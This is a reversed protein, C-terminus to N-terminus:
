GAARDTGTRRNAYGASLGSMVILAGVVVLLRAFNDDALIAGGVTPGLIAAIGLVAPIASVYRGSADLEAVNGLQFIISVTWAFMFVPGAILYAAEPRLLLGILCAIQTIGAVLIPTLRGVREHLFIPVLSGAGGALLAVSLVAGVTEPAISSANGLREYFAWLAAASTHFVLAGGLAPIVNEAPAWDKHREEQQATKESRRVIWPLLLMSIAPLLALTLMLGSFGWVPIIAIPLVLVILAPLTVQAFTGIGLSRDPNRTDLLSITAIGFLGGGGLGALFLVTLLGSLSQLQTSGIFSVIQVAAFVACSSRWSVRRAFAILAVSVITFGAMYSSAILGIQQNDFGLQEAITGLALPMVNFFAIGVATMIAAVAIVLPNNVDTAFRLNM